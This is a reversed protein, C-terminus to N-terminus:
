LVLSKPGPCNARDPVAHNPWRGSTTAMSSRRWSLSTRRPSCVLGGSPCTGRQGASFIIMPVTAV